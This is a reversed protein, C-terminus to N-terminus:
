KIIGIDSRSRRCKLLKSLDEAMWQFDAFSQLIGRTLTVSKVEVHCLDEKMHSFIGQAGPLAISISCIDGQVRHWTDVGICKQNTPIGTLIEKFRNDRNPLFYLTINVMDIVLGLLVPCTSWM